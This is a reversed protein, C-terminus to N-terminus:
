KNLWLDIEKDLDENSIIEGKAIQELGIDIEKRQEASTKYESGSTANFDLIKYVAKLLEEDETDDIKSILLKKLQNTTM